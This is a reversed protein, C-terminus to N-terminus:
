GFLRDDLTNGQGDEHVRAIGLHTAHTQVAHQGVPALTGGGGAAARKSGEETRPVPGPDIRWFLDPAAVVFGADAFRDATARLDQDVGNVTCAFIVGTAPVAAPASLYCDFAGGDKATIKIDTGPM